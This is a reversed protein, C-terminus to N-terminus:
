GMLRFPQYAEGSKIAKAMAQAQLILLRRFTVREGTRPHQFPTMLRRDYERLYRKLADPKLRVASVGVNDSSADKSGAEDGTPGPDEVENSPAHEFDDPNLVNTNILAATLRDVVPARFEELLDMALSPRAYHVAHFFGVFPDMGVSEIVSALESGLLTYGLSLLANVPDRPPRRTRLTLTFEPQIMKAFARFYARAAAGEIGMLEAISLASEATTASQALAQELAELEQNAHNRTHRQILARSNLIKSRVIAVGVSLRFSEDQYRQYQALRLTVNRSTPPVIRGKLRGRQTMLAVETGQALLLDIAPTTLQVGGLVVVRDVQFAPCSFLTQERKTVEIREARRRLVSGQETLYLTPM